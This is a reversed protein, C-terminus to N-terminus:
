NSQSETGYSTKLWFQDSTNEVQSFFYKGDPTVIVDYPFIQAHRTWGPGGIWWNNQGFTSGQGITVPYGTGNIKLTGTIAFNLESPWETACDATCTAVSAHSRFWNAVSSSAKRGAKVDIGWHLDPTGYSVGGWPQGGTISHDSLEFTLTPEWLWPFIYVWNDHETTDVKHSDGDGCGAFGIAIILAFLVFLVNRIM